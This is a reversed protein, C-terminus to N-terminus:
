IGSKNESRGVAGHAGLALAALLQKLFLLYLKHSHIFIFIVLWVFGTWPDWWDLSSKFTDWMRCVAGSSCVSWSQNKSVCFCSGCNLMKALILSMWFHVKRQQPNLAKWWSDPWMVAFWQTYFILFLQSWGRRLSAVLSASQPQCVPWLGDPWQRQIECWQLLSDAGWYQTASRQGSSSFFLHFATLMTVM